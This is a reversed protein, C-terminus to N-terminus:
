ITHTDAHDHAEASPLGARARAHPGDSPTHTRTTSGHGTYLWLEGFSNACLTAGDGEEGGTELPNETRNQRNYKAAVICHHTGTGEVRLCRQNKREFVLIRLFFPSLSTPPPPYPLSFHSFTRILYSLILYWPPSPLLLPALRPCTPPLSLCCAQNISLQAAPPLSCLYHLARDTHIVQPTRTISLFYIVM